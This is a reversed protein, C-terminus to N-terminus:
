VMGTTREAAIVAANYARHAPRIRRLLLAHAAALDAEFAERLKTVTESYEIQADRTAAAREAEAALLASNRARHDGSSSM